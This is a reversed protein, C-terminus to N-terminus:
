AGERCHECSTNSRDEASGARYGWLLGYRHALTNICHECGAARIVAEDYTLTPAPVGYRGIQRLREAIGPRVMALVLSPTYGSTFAGLTESGGDERIRIIEHRLYGPFRSHQYVFGQPPTPVEGRLNPVWREGQENEYWLRPATSLM